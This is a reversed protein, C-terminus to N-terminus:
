FVYGISVLGLTLSSVNALKQAAEDLLDSIAQISFQNSDVSLSSISSSSSSVPVQIAIWDCGVTLGNQWTWFNGIAFPIVISKMSAEWTWNTSITNITLDTKVLITRSGVGSAISFSNGIFYRIYGFISQSNLTASHLTVDSDNIASSILSTANYSGGLYVIGLKWDKGLHYFIGAGYRLQSSDFAIGLGEIGVSKNSRISSSSDNTKDITKQGNRQEKHDKKDHGVKNPTKRNEAYVHNSGLSVLCLILSRIINLVIYQNSKSVKM